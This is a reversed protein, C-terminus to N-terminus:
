CCFERDKTLESTAQSILAQLSVPRDESVYKKDKPWAGIPIPLKYAKINVFGADRCWGEIKPGPQSDYGTRTRRGCSEKHFQFLPREPGISGDTSYVLTDWDQFEVWGGPKLNSSTTITLM